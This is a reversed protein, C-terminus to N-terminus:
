TAGKTSASMKAPVNDVRFEHVIKQIELEECISISLPVYDAPFICAGIVTRAQEITQTPMAM